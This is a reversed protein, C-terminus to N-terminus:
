PSREIQRAAAAASRRVNPNAHKQALENLVPLAEGAAPGIAGLAKVAADFRAATPGPQRGEKLLAVLVPVAPAADPGMKGLAEVAWKTGAGRARIVEALLPVGEAKLSAITEFVDLVPPEAHALERLRALGVDADGLRVRAYLLPLEGKAGPRLARVVPLAEASADRGLDGLGTLAAHVVDEDRDGLAGVLARVVRPETVGIAGLARAAGSRDQPQPSKLMALLDPVAPAAAPPGITALTTAASSRDWEDVPHRLLELLAPVAPAAQAGHFRLAYCAARRDDSDASKLGEALVPVVEASRRRIRGLAFLAATREWRDQGRAVALLAPIGAEADPGILGLADYAAVRAKQDGSETAEVLVRVAARLADPPYEGLRLVAQQDDKGAAVRKADAVAAAVEDDAVPAAGACSLLVV